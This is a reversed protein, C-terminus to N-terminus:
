WGVEDTKRIGSFLPSWKTGMARVGLLPFRSVNDEEVLLPCLRTLCSVMEVKAETAPPAVCERRWRWAVNRV